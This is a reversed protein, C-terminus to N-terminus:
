PGHASQEKRPKREATVGTPRSIAAPMKAIARALSDDSTKGYVRDVMTTSSHGMMQAIHTSDVGAQKLWSGFTRRLDNTSVHAMKPETMAAAIARLDKAVTPWPAVLPQEADLQELWARLAPHLPITRYRSTRRTGPITILDHEFDVHEWKMRQTEGLNSSTYVQLMLWTRHRIPTAAFLRAFETTTLWRTRPTYEAAWSPVVDLSGGYEERARAEKLAQRLVVLEKHITHRAAEESLRQAAYAAVQARTLTNIDTEAGLVRLLHLGKKKYLGGTVDRKLQAMDDIAKALKKPAYATHDSSGLEASRLRVKAVQRDATRLSTRVREGDPTYYDAYYTDGRKYLKGM